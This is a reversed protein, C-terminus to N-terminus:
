LVFLFRLCYCLSQRRPTATRVTSCARCGTIAVSRCASSPVAGKPAQASATHLSRGRLQFSASHLESGYYMWDPMESAGCHSQWRYRKHGDTVLPEHGVLDGLAAPPQGQASL